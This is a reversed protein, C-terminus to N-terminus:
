YVWFRSERVEFMGTLKWMGFGGSWRGRDRSQMLRERDAHHKRPVELQFHKRVPAHMSFKNNVQANQVQLARSVAEMATRQKFKSSSASIMMIACM